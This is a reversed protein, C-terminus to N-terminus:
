EDEGVPVEQELVDAEPEDDPHPHALRPDPEAPTAQEQRDAEPVADDPVPSM